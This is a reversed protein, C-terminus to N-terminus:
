MWKVFTFGLMRVGNHDYAGWFYALRRQYDLRDNGLNVELESLTGQPVLPTVLYETGGSGGVRRWEWGGQEVDETPEEDTDRYAMELAHVETSTARIKLRQVGKAYSRNTLDVFSASRWGAVWRRYHLAQAEQTWRIALGGLRSNDGLLGISGMDGHTQWQARDNFYTYNDNWTRTGFPGVHTLVPQPGPAALSRPIPLNLTSSTDEFRALMGWSKSSAFLEDM